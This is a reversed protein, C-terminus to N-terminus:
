LVKLTKFSFFHRHYRPHNGGVWRNQDSSLMFKLSHINPVEILVVGGPKLCNKVSILAAAPDALHELLHWMTIVDFQQEFNLGLNINQQVVEFPYHQRCFEVARQSIDVGCVQYGNDMAHKLFFGQGCGVDLISATKFRKKLYTIRHENIAWLRKLGPDNSDRQYEEHYSSGYYGDYLDEGEVQADPNRLFVYGCSRCASIRFGDVRYKEKLTSGNCLYCRAIEM